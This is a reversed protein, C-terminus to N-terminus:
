PALPAAPAASRARPLHPVAVAELESRVQTLYRAGSFGIAFLIAAVIFMTRPRIVGIRALMSPARDMFAFRATGFRVEDGRKLVAPNRLRSGNIFTGNTSELDSISYAGLRQQIVAHHRSVSPADIVVHNDSESGVTTKDPGLPYERPKSGGIAILRPAFKGRAPTGGPAEPAPDRPVARLARNPVPTSM